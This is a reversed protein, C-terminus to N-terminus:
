RGGRRTQDTTEAVGGCVAEGRLVRELRKLRVVIESRDLFFREPDRHSVMLRDVEGAIAELENLAATLDAM